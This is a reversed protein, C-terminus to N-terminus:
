VQVPQLVTSFQEYVVWFTAQKPFSSWTEVGALSKLLTNGLDQIYNLRLKETCLSMSITPVQFKIFNPLCNHFLLGFLPINVCFCRFMEHHPVFTGESQWPLTLGYRIGSYCIKNIETQGASFTIDLIKKKKVM